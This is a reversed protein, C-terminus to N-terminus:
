RQYQCESQIKDKILGFDQPMLEYFNTDPAYTFAQNIYEHLKSILSMINGEKKTTIPQFAGLNIRRGNSDPISISNMKVKVITGDGCQFDVKKDVFIQNHRMQNVLRERQNPLSYLLNIDEYDLGLLYNIDTYRLIQSFHTNIGRIGEPSTTIFVAEQFSANLCADVMTNSPRLYELLEDQTLDYENIMHHIGQIIQHNIPNLKLCERVFRLEEQSLAPEDTVYKILTQHDLIYEM